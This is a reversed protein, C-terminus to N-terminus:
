ACLDSVVLDPLLFRDLLMLDALPVCTGDAVLQPPMVFGPSRALWHQLRTYMPPMSIHRSAGLCPWQGRGASLLGCKRVRRVARRCTPWPGSRTEAIRVLLCTM